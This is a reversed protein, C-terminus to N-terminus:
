QTCPVSTKSIRHTLRNRTGRLAALHKYPLNALLREGDSNRMTVDILALASQIASRISILRAPGYAYGVQDRYM